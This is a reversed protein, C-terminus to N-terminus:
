SQDSAPLYFRKRRWLGKVRCNMGLLRAVMVQEFGTLSAPLPADMYWAVAPRHRLKRLRRYLKRVTLGPERKLVAELAQQLGQHRFFLQEATQQATELNLLAEPSQSDLLIDVAGAKLIATLAELLDTPPRSVPEPWAASFSDQWDAALLAKKGPLYFWLDPGAQLAWVDDPGLRWGQWATGGIELTEISEPALPVATDPSPHLPPWRRAALSVILHLAKKQGIFAALIERLCRMGFQRLAAGELTQLPDIYRSLNYLRQSLNEVAALSCPSGTVHRKETALVNHILDNNGTRSAHCSSNLLTFSGAPGIAMLQQEIAARMEAGMGSDLLYLRDDVQYLFANDAEPLGWHAALLGGEILWLRETIPHIQGPM